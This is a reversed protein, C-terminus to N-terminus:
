VSIRFRSRTSRRIGLSFFTTISFSLDPLFRPLFQPFEFLVENSVFSLIRPQILDDTFSSLSSNRGDFIERFGGDVGIIGGGSGRRRCEIRRLVSRAREFVRGCRSRSRNSSSSGGKRAAAFSWIKGGENGVRGIGRIGSRRSSSSVVSLM